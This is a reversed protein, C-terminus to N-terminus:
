QSVKVLCLVTGTTGNRSSWYVDDHEIGECANSNADKPQDEVKRTVKFAASADTCDVLKIDDAQTPDETGSLCDGVDARMPSNRYQIFLYGGVGLILVLVIGIAVLTGTSRKKKPKEETTTTTPAPPPGSPAGASTEVPAPADAPAAATPTAAAPEGAATTEVPAPGADPATAATTQVPAPATEARELAQDAPGSQTPASSADPVQAASSNQESL